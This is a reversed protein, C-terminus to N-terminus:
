KCEKKPSSPDPTLISVRLLKKGIHRLTKRIEDMQLWPHNEDEIVFDFWRELTGSLLRVSFFDIVFFLNHTGYFRSGEAVNDALWKIEIGKPNLATADPDDPAQFAQKGRIFTYLRANPICLQIERVWHRVLISPCAVLVTQGSQAIQAVASVMIRSKGSGVSPLEGAVEDSTRLENAIKASILEQLPLLKTM